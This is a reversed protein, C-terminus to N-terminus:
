GEVKKDEINKHWPKKSLVIAIIFIGVAVSAGFAILASPPYGEYPNKFENILNQIFIFGLVVPTLYKICFLWWKGIKVDSVENVEKMMKEANYVYGLVITEILGLLVIGYNGVFHDVIDLLYISARTAFLSSGLFGFICIFLVLKERKINYKDLIASAFAEVMSVSSSIGAIILAFFFMIGFLAKFIDNMPLNSIAMPFAIFALGAGSQMIDDFEIGSTFSYYGLLSFVCLGALFDFSANSFVAIRANNAIDSNKPLYSAYAIMVGVALTTSFFVQSYASIWVEPDLIKSFDPELFWNLGYKAGELTVGRLIMIVMLVILLPMIFKCVKEIGGSIGKKVIIYNVVWVLLVTGLINFRLGKIEWPSSSLQLFDGIFFKATDVGWGMNFSFALYNISWAIICCYFTMVVLPIMVQWWGIFEWKNGLRRFALPAAGRMKNGFALEMTMLPVGATILAFFYPILFAGGGNSYAQYPFRWLNGLGIAAGIAGMLFGIRSNWQERKEM